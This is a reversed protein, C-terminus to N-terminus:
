LSVVFRLKWILGISGTVGMTGSIGVVRVMFPKVTVPSLFSVTIPPTPSPRRFIPSLNSISTVTVTRALCPDTIVVPSTLSLCGTDRPSVPIYRLSRVIIVDCDPALTEPYTFFGPFPCRKPSRNARVKSLASSVTAPSILIM